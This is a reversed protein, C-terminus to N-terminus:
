ANISKVKLHKLTNKIVDFVEVKLSRYATNFEKMDKQLQQHNKQISKELEPQDIGDELVAIEYHHATIHNHLLTLREHNLKLQEKIKQAKILDNDIMIQFSFERLWEEFVHYEDKIFELESLWNVTQEQIIDPSQWISLTHKTKM